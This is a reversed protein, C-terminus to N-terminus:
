PMLSRHSFHRSPIRWEDSPDPGSPTLGKHLSHRLDYVGHEGTAILEPTDCEILYWVSSTPAILLSYTVRAVVARVTLQTKQFPTFLLVHLSRPLLLGTRSANGRFVIKFLAHGIYQWSIKTFVTFSRKNLQVLTATTMESLLTKSLGCFITFYKFVLNNVKVSCDISYVRLIYM